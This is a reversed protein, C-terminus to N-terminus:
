PPTERLDASLRDVAAELTTIAQHAAAHDDAVRAREVADIADLTARSAFIALSGKFSHATRKVSAGDGADAARRLAAIREPAEDLFADVVERLLDRDGGMRGLLEDRDLDSHQAM